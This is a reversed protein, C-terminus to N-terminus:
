GPLGWKTWVGNSPVDRPPRGRGDRVEVPGRVSPDLTLPTGAESHVRVWRTVGDSRDADM